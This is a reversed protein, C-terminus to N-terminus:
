EGNRDKRFAPQIAEDEALIPGETLCAEAGM